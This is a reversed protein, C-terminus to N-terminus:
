VSNDFYYSLQHLRRSLEQVRPDSDYDLERAAVLGFDMSAKQDQTPTYGRSIWELIEEIQGRVTEFPPFDATKPSLIRLMELAQQLKSRFEELTRINVSQTDM